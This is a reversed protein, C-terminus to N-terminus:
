QPERTPNYDIEIGPAKAPLPDVFPLEQPAPASSGGNIEDAAPTDIHNM